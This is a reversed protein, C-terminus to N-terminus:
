SYWIGSVDIWGLGWKTLLVGHGIYWFGHFGSDGDSAFGGAVGELELVRGVGLAGPGPSIRTLTECAVRV